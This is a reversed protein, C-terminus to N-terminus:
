GDGKIRFAGLIILHAQLDILEFDKGDRGTAVIVRDEDVTIATTIALRRSTWTRNMYRSRKASRKDVTTEETRVRDAAGNLSRAVSREAFDTEENSFINFAAQAAKDIRKIQLKFEEGEYQFPVVTALQIQDVTVLDTKDSCFQVGDGITRCTPGDCAVLVTTAILGIQASTFARKSHFGLRM